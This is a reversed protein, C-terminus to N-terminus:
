RPRDLQCCRTLPPQDVYGFAPHQGAVIYYMEDGHFGYAGSVALLAVVMLGAVLLVPWPIAFAGRRPAPPPGLTTMPGDHDGHVPHSHTPALRSGTLRSTGPSRRDEPPEASAVELNFASHRM